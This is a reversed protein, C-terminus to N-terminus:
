VGINNLIKMFEKTLEDVNKVETKEQEKMNEEQKKLIEELRAIKEKKYEEATQPEPKVTNEEMEKIKDELGKLVEAMKQQYEPLNSFYKLALKAGLIYSKQTVINQLENNYRWNKEEYEAQANEELEQASAKKVKSLENKLVLIYDEQEKKLESSKKWLGENTFVDGEINRLYALQPFQSVTLLFLYERVTIRDGKEFRKLLEQYFNIEM